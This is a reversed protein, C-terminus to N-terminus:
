RTSPQSSQAKGQSEHYSSRLAPPQNGRAVQDGYPSLDIGQQHTGGELRGEGWRAELGAALCSVTGGPAGGRALSRNSGLRGMWVRGSDVTM